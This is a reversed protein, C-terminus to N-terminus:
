SVEESNYPEAAVDRSGDPTIELSQGINAGFLHSGYTATSPSLLSSGRGYAEYCHTHM